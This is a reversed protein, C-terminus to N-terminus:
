RRLSKAWPEVGRGVSRFNRQRGLNAPEFGDLGELFKCAGLRYISSSRVSDGKEYLEATM